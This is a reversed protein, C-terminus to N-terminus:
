EFLHVVDAYVEVFRWGAFRVFVYVQFIHFTKRVKPDRFLRAKYKPRPGGEM